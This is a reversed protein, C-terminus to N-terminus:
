SRHRLLLRAGLWVLIVAMIAFLAVTMWTMLHEATPAEPDASDPWWWPAKVAQVNHPNNWWKDANDHQHQFYDPDSAPSNAPQYSPPPTYDPIRQAAAPGAWAVLLVAARWGGLRMPGM